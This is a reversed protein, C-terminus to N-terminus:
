LSGSHFCVQLNRAAKDSLLHVTVAADRGDKVPEESPGECPVLKAAQRNFRRNHHALRRFPIFHM